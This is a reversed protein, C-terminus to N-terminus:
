SIPFQFSKYIQLIEDYKLDEYRNNIYKNNIRNVFFKNSKIKKRRNIFFFKIFFLLKDSDISEKKLKFIVIKSKVKPKPYFVNPSIEFKINYYTCYSSLFKYKNMKGILPDFKDALESQIMCLIETINKNLIITKLLFKSSINYPLNSIIKYKKFNKFDFKLVDINTISVSKNKYKNKLLQFINYDKEILLLKKPKLKIIESTLAGLGPGIEIINENFIKTQKLIKKVVNNDKLFNQGLSKKPYIL